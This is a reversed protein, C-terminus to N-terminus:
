QTRSGVFGRIKDALLRFMEDKTLAMCASYIVVGVLMLMLTNGITSKGLVSTCLLRVVAAMLISSALYKTIPAVVGKYAVMRRGVWLVVCLKLLESVLTATAAGYAGLTPILVWNLTLNLVVCSVNIALLTNERKTAALLQSGLLDSVGMFVLMPTFIRLLYIIKEFGPGYFWPVLNDSVAALGFAMPMALFCIAKLSKGLYATIRDRDAKAFLSALRPMLVLGLSTVLATCLSVIKQSQEYFGVEAINGSIAGLMTKDIVAYITTVVSPLLLILAPKIHRKLSSIEQPVFRAYRLAYIFLWVNSIVNAFMICGAYVYLDNADRVFVFIAAVSVVKTILNRGVIKPFEELGAFVWSVDFISAFIGIGCMVFMTKYRGIISVVACYLALAIALAIVQLMWLQSFTRDVEEQSERVYAIERKGYIPIGLTGCVIFYTSISLCYSYIGLGSAGIVRSIYPTTVLPVLIVLINYAVNALYNITISKQM